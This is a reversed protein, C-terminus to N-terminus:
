FKGCAKYAATADTQAAARRLLELYERREASMERLLHNMDPPWLVDTIYTANKMIEAMKDMDLRFCLMKALRIGAETEGHVANLNGIWEAMVREKHEAIRETGIGMQEADFSLALCILAATDVDRIQLRKVERCFKLGADFIPMCTANNIYADLEEPPAVGELYEHMMDVDMFMGWHLVIRREDHAPFFHSTLFARHLVGITQWHNEILRIRDERDIEHIPEYYQHFMAYIFPYTAKEMKLWQNKNVQVCRRGAAAEQPFEIEYMCKQANLFRRYGRTVRELTPFNELAAASAFPSSALSTSPASADFELSSSSSSSASSSDLATQESPQRLEVNSASSHLPAFGKTWDNSAEAHERSQQGNTREISPLSDSRKLPFPPSFDASPETKIEPKGAAPKPRAPRADQEEYKMGVALCKTLRCGRCFNRSNTIDCQRNRYCIYRRNEAIARRFYSSCARCTQVGFHFGKSPQQECVACPPNFAPQKGRM